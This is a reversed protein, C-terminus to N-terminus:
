LMHLVHVVYLVHRVHAVHTVCLADMVNPPVKSMPDDRVRSPYRHLLCLARRAGRFAFRSFSPTSDGCGECFSQARIRRWIAPSRAGSGRAAHPWDRAGGTCPPMQARMRVRLLEQPPVGHVVRRAGPDSPARMAGQSILCLVCEFSCECVLHTAGFHIGRQTQALKWTSVGRAPLWGVHLSAWAFFVRERQSQRQPEECLRKGGRNRRSSLRGQHRECVCM